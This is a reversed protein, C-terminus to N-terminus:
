PACYKKSQPILSLEDESVMLDAINHSCQLAPGKIRLTMELVM